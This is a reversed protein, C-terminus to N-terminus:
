FLFLSIFGEIFPHFPFLFEYHRQQKKDVNDHQYCSNKGMMMMGVSHNAHLLVQWNLLLALHMVMMVGSVIRAAVAFAHCM